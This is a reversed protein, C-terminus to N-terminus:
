PTPSPVSHLMSAVGIGLLVVLVLFVLLSAVAVVLSATFAGMFAWFGFGFAGTIRIPVLSGDTQMELHARAQGAPRPDKLVSSRPERGPPETPWDKAAVGAEAQVPWWKRGNWYFRGDDSLPRGM